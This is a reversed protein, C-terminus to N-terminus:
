LKEEEFGKAFDSDTKHKDCMAFQNESDKTDTLLVTPPHGCSYTM